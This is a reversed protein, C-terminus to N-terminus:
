SHNKIQLVMKESFGWAKAHPM